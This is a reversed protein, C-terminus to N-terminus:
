RRAVARLRRQKALDQVLGAIRKLFAPSFAGLPAPTELDFAETELFYNYEDLILWSERDLGARRREIEPVALFARDAADPQQTTLPFVFLAAPVAPTRVVVCAPRVKRGAEEGRAAQRAWLYAYRIVDGQDLM